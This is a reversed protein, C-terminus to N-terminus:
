RATAEAWTRRELEQALSEFVEFHAPMSRSMRRLGRRDLGNRDGWELLLAHRGFVRFAPGRRGRDGIIAIGGALAWARAAPTEDGARFLREEGPRPTPPGTTISLAREAM